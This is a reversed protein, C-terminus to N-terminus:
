SIRPCIEIWYDDLNNIRASVNGTISSNILGSENELRIEQDPHKIQINITLNNIESIELCGSLLINDDEYKVTRNIWEPLWYPNFTYVIRPSQTANDDDMPLDQNLGVLEESIINTVLGSWGVFPQAPRLGNLDNSTVNGTFPSYYEYLTENVLYNDDGFDRTCFVNAVMGVTKSLIERAISTFNYKNLGIGIMYNYNIWVPGRWFGTFDCTPENIAVTPIPYETYFESANSLHKYVLEQAQKQTAVECFLSIFASSTLVKIFDGHENLDYFFSTTDDWFANQIREKLNESKLSLKVEDEGLGLAGAIMSLYKLDLSLYCNLDFADILKMRDIYDDFRPSNDLGSEDRHVWSFFGNNNFDRNNFFYNNYNLLNHYVNRLFDKDKTKKYVEYVAYSLLPPQTIKSKGTPGVMHSIMGNPNISKIYTELIKQAILPDHNKWILSIFATDWLWSTWYSGGPLVYIGADLEGERLNSELLQFTKNYLFEWDQYNEPLDVNPHQPKVIIADKRYSEYLLTCPVVLSIALICTIGIRAIQKLFRKFKYIKTIKKLTARKLSRQVLSELNFHINIFIMCLILTILFLSSGVQICGLVVNFSLNYAWEIFYPILSSIYICVLLFGLFLTRTSEPINKFIRIQTQLSAYIIAATSLGLFLCTLFFTISNHSSGLFLIPIPFLLYPILLRIRSQFIKKKADYNEQNEHRKQSKIRELLFQFLLLCIGITSLLISLPWEYSDLTAVMVGQRAVVNLIYLISVSIGLILFWNGIVTKNILIPRVADHDTPLTLTENGNKDQIDRADDHPTATLKLQKQVIPAMFLVVLLCITVTTIFLFFDLSFLLVFVGSVILSSGLLKELSKASREQIATLIKKLILLLVLNRLAFVIVDIEIYRPNELSLRYIFQAADFITSMILFIILMPLTKLCLDQKQKFFMAPIIIIIPLIFYLVLDEKSLNYVYNMIRKDELMFGSPLQYMWSSPEVPSFYLMMMPTIVIYFIIIGLLLVLLTNWILAYHNNKM